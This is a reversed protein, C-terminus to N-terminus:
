LTKPAAPQRQTCSIQTDRENKRSIHSTEFRDREPKLVMSL